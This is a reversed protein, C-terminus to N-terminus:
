RKWTSSSVQRWGRFFVTVGLRVARVTYVLAPLLKLFSHIGRGIAIPHSGCSRSRGRTLLPHRPNHWGQLSYLGAKTEQKVKLSLPMEEYLFMTAVTLRSQRKSRLVIASCARLASYLGFTNSAMVYWKTCPISFM